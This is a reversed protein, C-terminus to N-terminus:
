RPAPSAPIRARVCSWTEQALPVANFVLAALFGTVLWSVPLPRENPRLSWDASEAGLGALALAQGWALVAVLAISALPLIEMFSHVMQEFPGVKRRPTSYHLDM